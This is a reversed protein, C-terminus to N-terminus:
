FLSFFNYKTSSNKTKVYQLQFKLFNYLRWLLQLIFNIQNKLAM